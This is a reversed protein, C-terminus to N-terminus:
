CVLLESRQATGVGPGQGVCAVIWETVSDVGIQTCDSSHDVDARQCTVFHARCLSNFVCFAVTVGRLVFQLRYSTVLFVNQGLSQTQQM